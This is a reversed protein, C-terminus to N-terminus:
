RSAGQPAPRAFANDETREAAVIKANQLVGAATAVLEVELGFGGDL